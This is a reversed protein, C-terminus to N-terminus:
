LKTFVAILSHLNAGDNVTYAWNINTSTTLSGGGNIVWDTAIIQDPVLTINTGSVDAIAPNSTSGSNAFNYIKVATESGASIEITVEFTQKTEQEDVRWTGVFASRPDAPSPSPDETTCASFGVQFLVFIASLFRM